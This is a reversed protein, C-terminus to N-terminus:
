RGSSLASLGLTPDGYYNLMTRGAISESNQSGCEVLAKKWSEGASKGRMLESFFIVGTNDAGTSLTDLSSNGDTWDTATGPTLSTSGIVGISTNSRLLSYTLNDAVDTKGVMCSVAVTFAPTTSGITDADASTIFNEYAVENSQPIGDSNIDELWIYRSVGKELGHGFWFVMGYGRTWETIVNERTLPLECDYASTAQGEKEYLRTVSYGDNINIVNRIFWETSAAGDDNDELTYDLITEGKFYYMAAPLLIKKRYGTEDSGANSYAIINKLMSDLEDINRYVPIRGTMLQLDLKTGNFGIDSFSEGPLGNGNEDWSSDLESYLLDTCHSRFDMGQYDGWISGNRPWVKFYPIDDSDPDSGGIILLYSYEAHVSRLWKRIAFAKEQGSLNGAAYENETALLVRFGTKEKESVFKELMASKETIDNTTLIILGLGDKDAKTTSKKNEDECALLLSVLCITFILKKM